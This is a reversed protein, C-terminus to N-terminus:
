AFLWEAIDGPSPIRGASMVKGDIALAMTSTRAVVRATGGAVNGGHVEHRTAAGRATM